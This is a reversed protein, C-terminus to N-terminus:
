RRGDFFIPGAWTPHTAFGPVSGHDPYSGAFYDLRVGANITLRDLTWQDQAYVGVNTLENTEPGRAEFLARFPNGFLTMINTWNSESQYAELQLPDPAAIRTTDLTDSFSEHDVGGEM